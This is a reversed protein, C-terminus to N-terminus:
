CVTSCRSQYQHQFNCMNWGFRYNYQRQVWLDFLEVCIKKQFFL